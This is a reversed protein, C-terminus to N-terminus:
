MIRFRSYKDRSNNYMMLRTLATKLDKIIEDLALLLDILENDRVFLNKLENVNERISEDLEDIIEEEGDRDARGFHRNTLIIFELEEDKRTKLENIEYKIQVDKDLNLDRVKQIMDKNVLIEKLYKIIQDRLM